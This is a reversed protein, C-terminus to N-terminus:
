QKTFKLTTDFNLNQDDVMIEGDSNHRLFNYNVIKEKAELSSIYLKKKDTLGFKIRLLEAQYTWSKKFMFKGNKSQSHDIPYPEDLEFEIEILNYDDDHVFYGYYLGPASFDVRINNKVISREYHYDRVNIFFDLEAVNVYKRLVFESLWYLPSDNAGPYLSFYNPNYNEINDDSKVISKNIKKHKLDLNVNYLLRTNFLSDTCDDIRIMSQNELLYHAHDKVYNNYLKKRIELIVDVINEESMREIVLEDLTTDEIQAYLDVNAFFIIWVILWFRKM